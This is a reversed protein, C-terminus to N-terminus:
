PQLTLTLQYGSYYRNRLILRLELDYDCAADAAAVYRTTTTPLSASWPAPPGDDVESEFKMDAGRGNCILTPVLYEEYDFSFSGIDAVFQGGYVRGVHFRIPSMESYGAEICAARARQQFDPSGGAKVDCMKGTRTLVVSTARRLPVTLSATRDAGLEFPQHVFAYGAGRVDVALMARTWPVNFSFGGNAGSPVEAGERGDVIIRVFAGQVGAGTTSDTVMGNITVQARIEIPIALSASKGECTASVSVPGAGVVTVVGKAVTAAKADSSTWTADGTCDRTSGGTLTANAALTVRDGLDLAQTPGNTIVVATVAM